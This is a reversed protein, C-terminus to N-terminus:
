AKCAIVGLASHIERIVSEVTISRISDGPPYIIKHQSGYPYWCGPKAHRSFIAVCATGVSAALHMPGSDHGIFITAYKLIAASERVSLKGCLNVTPGQWLSLLAESRAYESQVGIFVLCHNTYQKAISQIMAKWNDEGWEKMPHKTGISCVIFPQNQIDTEIIDRAKKLEDETLALETISKDTWDIQGLAKLQRALRQYESEYLNTKRDFRYQFGHQFLSLGIIKKIGCFKFFLYDRWAQLWSRSQHFYIMKTFHNEKIIKRLLFIKQLLSVHCPYDIFSDALDMNDLILELACAQHNVPKNTLVVRKANPFAQKILRFGPLAVVTDGVSGLRFILLSEVEQDATTVMCKVGDKQPTSELM